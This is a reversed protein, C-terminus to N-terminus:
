STDPTSTLPIGGVMFSSDRGSSEIVWALLSTTTTKGHTGTVVFSRKGGIFFDKIVEPMSAYRIKRNLVEEVERNGRSVVNGIVVLDPAPNLNSSCFGEFVQIELARLFTSMPEYVGSDSGTIRYGGSKLMGALAGMATGCIGVLHIHRIQDKSVIM